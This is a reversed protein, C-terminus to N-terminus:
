RWLPALEVTFGPWDPPSLTGNNEGRVALVYRERELRFCEMTRLEPDVIWYHEVGFEAYRRAKRERDHAATSPSLIEVVVLPAGEIGRKSVQEPDGVVVLDPQVVDHPGLIVDIPAYFVEGVSGAEFYAEMQRFLRKSAHQHGTTPAPTVYLAGELLEYRKGDDPMAAYDSYDLKRNLGSRKM